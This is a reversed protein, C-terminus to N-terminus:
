VNAAPCVFKLYSGLNVKNSYVSVPVISSPDLIRRRKPLPKRADTMQPIM